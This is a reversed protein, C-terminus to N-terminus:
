MLMWAEERSRVSISCCRGSLQRAASSSPCPSTIARVWPEPARTPRDAVAGEIAPVLGTAPYNNVLEAHSISLTISEVANALALMGKPAPADPALRALRPDNAAAPHSAALEAPTEGNTVSTTAFSLWDCPQGKSMMVAIAPDVTESTPSPGTVQQGVLDYLGTMPGTAHYVGESEVPAPIRLGHLMFRATQAAIEAEVAPDHLAASLADLAIAPLSPVTLRRDDDTALLGAVDAVRAGLDEASLGYTQALTVLTQGVVTTVRASPVLLAALPVLIDAGEILSVFAAQQDSTDGLLLRLRINALTDDPRVILAAAAPLAVAGGPLPTANAAVVAALWAAYAPDLAGIQTASVAGAVSDLTDGPLTQWTIPPPPPASTDQDFASPVLLTAPLPGSVPIQGPNLAAIAEAYWDAGQVAAEAHYGPLRVWYLAAVTAVPLM